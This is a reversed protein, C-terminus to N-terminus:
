KVTFPIEGKSLYGERGMAHWELTYSGPALGSVQTQLSTDSEQRVDKAAIPIRTGDPRIVELTSENKDVPVTFQLDIPLDGRELVAGAAPRSRAAILKGEIGIGEQMLNLIRSLGDPMDAQGVNIKMHMLFESSPASQSGASRAIYGKLDIAPRMELEKPVPTTAAQAAPGNAADGPKGLMQRTRAVRTDIADVIRVAFELQADKIQLAPIPLMSLLPVSITVDRGGSRQSFSVMRLAGYEDSGAASPDPGPLSRFGAQRIFDVTAQASLREADVLAHLPAGILQYLSLATRNNGQESGNAV